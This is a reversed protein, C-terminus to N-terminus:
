LGTVLCARVVQLYLTHVGAQLARARIQHQKDITRDDEHDLRAVWVALIKLHDVFGVALQLNGAGVGHHALRTVPLRAHARARLCSGALCRTTAHGWSAGHEIILRHQRVPLRLM